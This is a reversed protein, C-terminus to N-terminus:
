SNSLWPGNLNIYSKGCVPFRYIIRMHCNLAEFALVSFLKELGLFRLTETRYAFDRSTLKRHQLGRGQELVQFRRRTIAEFCQYAISRSLVADANVILEPDAENPGICPRRINLNRVM